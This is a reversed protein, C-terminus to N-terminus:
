SRHYDILEVEVTEGALFWKEVGNADRLKFRTESPADDLDIVKGRFKGDRTERVTDRYNTM